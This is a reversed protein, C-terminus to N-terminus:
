SADRYLVVEGAAAAILYVWPQLLNLNRITPTIVMGTKQDRGHSLANRIDRIAKTFVELGRPRFDDAQCNPGVIPVLVFGGDFTTPANFADLNTEIEAWLVDADVTDRILSAFRQYEDLKSDGIAGVVKDTISNVDDVANPAALIKRVAARASAELYFFSSYEIIRYYYLYKRAQDGSQAAIWFNILTDDLQKGKINEPFFGTIYRVKPNISKRDVQPAHVLVTPSLNDYYTIYFNLSRILDLVNEEDWDLNRIWFSHPDGIDIIFEDEDKESKNIYRAFSHLNRFFTSSMITPVTQRAISLLRDSAPGFECEHETGGYAFAFKRGVIEVQEAPLKYATWIVELASTDSHWIASLRDPLLLLNMQAAFAEVDDPIKIVLSADGWPTLVCPLSEGNPGAIGLSANKNLELFPALLQRAEVLKAPEPEVPVADNAPPEIADPM